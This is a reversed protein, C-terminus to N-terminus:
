TEVKLAEWIGRDRTKRNPTKRKNGKAEGGDRTLKMQIRGPM